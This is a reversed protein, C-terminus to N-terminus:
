NTLPINSPYGVATKFIIILNQNFFITNELDVSNLFVVDHGNVCLIDFYMLSLKFFCEIPRYLCM